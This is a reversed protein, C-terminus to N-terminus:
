GALHAADPLSKERGLVTSKSRSAVWRPELQFLPYARDAEAPPDFAVALDQVPDVYLITVHCEPARRDGFHTLELRWAM